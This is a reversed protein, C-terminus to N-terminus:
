ELTQWIQAIANEVQTKTYGAEFTQEIIPELYRNLGEQQWRGYASKVTEEPLNLQTAVETPSPLQSPYNLLGLEQFIQLQKIIQQEPALSSSPDLHFDTLM